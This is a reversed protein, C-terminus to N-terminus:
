SSVSSLLPNIYGASTHTWGHSGPIHEVRPREFASAIAEHREPRSEDKHWRVLIAPTTICGFREVYREIRERRLISFVREFLSRNSVKNIEESSDGIMPDPDIKIRRRILTTARVAAPTLGARVLDPTISHVARLREILRGLNVDHSSFIPGLLFVNGVREQAEKEHFLLDMINAAGLSMGVLKISKGSVLPSDLLDMVQARLLPPYFDTDSYDVLVAGEQEEVEPLQSGFTTEAGVVTGPLLLTDSPFELAWPNVTFRSMAHRKGSNRELIGRTREGFALNSVDVRGNSECTNNYLDRELRLM